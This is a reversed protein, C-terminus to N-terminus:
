DFDGGFMLGAGYGGILAGLIGIVLAIKFSGFITVILFYPFLGFILAFIFSFGIGLEEGGWKRLISILFFLIIIGIRAKMCPMSAVWGTTQESFGSCTLINYPM